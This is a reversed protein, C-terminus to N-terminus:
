QLYSHWSLEIKDSVTTYNIYLMKIKGDVILCLHVEGRQGVQNM